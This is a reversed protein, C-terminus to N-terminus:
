GTGVSGPGGLGGEVEEHAETLRERASAQHILPEAAESLVENEHHLNWNEREVHRPKARLQAVTAVLNIDETALEPHDSRSCM